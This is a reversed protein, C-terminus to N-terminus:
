IIDLRHGPKLSVFAKKWDKRTGILVMNKMKKTKGKFTATRVRDVKVTFAQEVAYKIENKNASKDVVFTYTTKEAAAYSKETVIPKRLINWPSRM